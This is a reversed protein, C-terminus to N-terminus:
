IPIPSDGLDTGHLGVSKSPNVRIQYPRGTRSSKLWLGTEDGKNPILHLALLVATVFM